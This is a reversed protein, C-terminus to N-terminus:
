VEVGHERVMVLFGDEDLVTIGYGEAKALKSGPDAGAVLYTVKRTVSSVASAGLSAVLGEAKGRPMSSLTGTFVFTQGTLPGEVRKVRKQEMNLGAERLKEIIVRKGPDAFYAAVSDAIKPGIGEVTAIEEAPAAMLADLTGFHDALMTAIEWGVHRIGLAFLLRNLNAGRSKEINKLLNDASKEGMRDLAVLQDKTLSYIDAPDQILGRDLFIAVWKEGLGEIDMVGAFHTIWRFIQAPCSINSCYAMAENEPRVAESGCVPCRKPLRYKREKGTRKSVVPGV